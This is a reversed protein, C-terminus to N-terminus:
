GKSLFACIEKKCSGSCRSLSLRAAAPLEWSIYMSKSKSQLAHPYILIQQDTKRTRQEAAKIALIASCKSLIYNREETVETNNKWTLLIYNSFMQHIEMCIVKFETCYKTKHPLYFSSPKIDATSPPTVCGINRINLHLRRRLHRGSWTIKCGHPRITAIKTGM